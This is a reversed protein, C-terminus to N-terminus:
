LTKQIQILESNNQFDTLAESVLSLLTINRGGGGQSLTRVAAHWAARGTMGLKLAFVEGGARSWIENETPGLPYLEVLTTELDALNTQVRATLRMENSAEQEAKLWGGKRLAVPFNNQTHTKLVPHQPRVKPIEDALYHFLDLVRILGDSRDDVAGQLGQLLFHTFLSNRYGGLIMSYENGASAAIIVRGKGQALKDLGPGGFAWKTLDDESKPTAADGSHCADILVLLREAPIAQLLQTLESAELGTERPRAREYEPPCLYTGEDPGSLRQAGHGSFYMVVTDDPTAEYALKQLAAVIAAKTAAGELLVQVNSDAYGCYKPNVFLKAIDLADDSPTRGLDSLEQYQGVGIVLARGFEFHKSM